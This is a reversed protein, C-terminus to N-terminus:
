SPVSSMESNQWTARRLVQQELRAGLREDYIIELRRKLDLSDADLYTENDVEAQYAVARFCGLIIRIDNLGLDLNERTELFRLMIATELPPM